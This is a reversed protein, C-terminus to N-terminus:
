DIYVFEPFIGEFANHGIRTKRSLTVKKLKKCRFFAHNYIGILREPLTISTLKECNEFAGRKILKLSEPFTIEKLNRCNCFAGNNINEIGDPITYKTGKKAYPYFVLAKQEKDFLVGDKTMFRPNDDNIIVQKLKKCGSFTYISYYSLKAPLNVTVLNNNWYGFASWEIINVTDPIAYSADKKGEPYKILVNQAENYLVGDMSSYELNENDVIIEKLKNCGEFYDLVSVDKPVFVSKMKECNRFANNFIYLISEPFRIKALKKCGKFAHFGIELLGDPLEVETLETCDKFANYDIANVGKKITIKKIKNNGKFANNYIKKIQLNRICGPITVYSNKGHYGTISVSIGDENDLSLDFDKMNISKNTTEM